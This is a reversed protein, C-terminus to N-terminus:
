SAGAAPGDAEGIGPGDSFPRDLPADWRKLNDVLQAVVDQVARGSTMSELAVLRTLDHVLGRTHDEDAPTVFKASFTVVDSDALPPTLEFDYRALSAFKALEAIESRSEIKTVRISFRSDAQM